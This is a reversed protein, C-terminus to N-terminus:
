YLLVFTPLLPFFLLYVNGPLLSEGYAATTYSTKMIFPTQNSNPMPVQFMPLLVPCTLFPFPYCYEQVSRHVLYWLYVNQIHQRLTLATKHPHAKSKGRLMSSLNNFLGRYYLNCLQNKRLEPCWWIPPLPIHTCTFHICFSNYHKIIQLYSQTVM